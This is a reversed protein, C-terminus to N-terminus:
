SKPNKEIWERIPIPPGIPAMIIVEPGDFCYYAGEGAKEVARRVARSSKDTLKIMLGTGSKRLRIEFRNVEGVPQVVVEAPDTILRSPGSKSSWHPKTVNKGDPGVLPTTWSEPGGSLSCSEWIALGQRTQLWDWIKSANQPEVIHPNM